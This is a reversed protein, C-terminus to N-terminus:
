LMHASLQWVGEGSPHNGKNQINHGTKDHNLAFIICTVRFFVCQIAVSAKDAARTQEDASAVDRVAIVIFSAYM